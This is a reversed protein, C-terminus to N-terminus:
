KEFYINFNLIILLNIKSMLSFDIFVLQSKTLKGSEKTMLIIPSFLLSIYLHTYFINNNPVYIFMNGYIDYILSM